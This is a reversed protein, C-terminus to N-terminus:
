DNLTRWLVDKLKDLGYGSVASIFVVPINKPLQPRLLTEWEADILDSKSIAIVGVRSLPYVCNIHSRPDPLSEFFQAIDSPCTRQTLSM